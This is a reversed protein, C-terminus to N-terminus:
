GRKAFHLVIERVQSYEPILDLSLCFRNPRRRPGFVQRAGLGSLARHIVEINDIRLSSNQLRLASCDLERSNLCDCSDIKHACQTPSPTAGCRRRQRWGNLLANGCASYSNYGAWAYNEVIAKM